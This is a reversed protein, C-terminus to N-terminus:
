LQLSSHICSFPTEPAWGCFCFPQFHKPHLAILGPSQQEPAATGAWGKSWLRGQKTGPAMLSEGRLSAENETQLDTTCAPQSRTPTCTHPICPARILGALKWSWYNTVWRFLQIEARSAATQTPLVQWSCPLLAPSGIAMLHHGQRSNFFFHVFSQVTRM